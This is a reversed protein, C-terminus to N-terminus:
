AAFTTSTSCRTYDAGLMTTRVDGDLSLAGQRGGFHSRASRSWVSSVGGHQERNLEFESGSLLDGGPLVAGLFGGGPGSAGEAGRLFGAGGTRLGRGAMGPSGIGTGSAHPAMPSAGMPSTGAPRGFQSLFDLAFNREMGPQVDRGAFRARFGPERPKAMRAEVHEVLHQATARGFRPLLAAPLVDANEITGTAEADELRAGSVNSLALVFTEEGEDHVDDLVAVAVTKSSEGAEFTLTSSATAYDEGARANGERTAYGVTVPDSAARSLTVAFAVAAGVAERARADSVSLAVQSQAPAGSSQACPLRVGGQQPNISGEFRCLAAPISGSLQNDALALTELNTLSGLSSPISGTLQDEYNGM